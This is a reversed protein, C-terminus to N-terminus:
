RGSAPPRTWPQVHNLHGSHLLSRLPSTYMLSTSLANPPASNCSRTIHVSRARQFEWLTSVAHTCSAVHMPSTLTQPVGSSCVCASTAPQHTFVHAHMCSTKLVSAALPRVAPMQGSNALSLWRSVTKSLQQEELPASAARSPHRQHLRWFEALEAVHLVFQWTKPLAPTDQAPAASVHCIATRLRRERSGEPLARLARQWKGSGSGSGGGDPQPQVYRLSKRRVSRRCATALVFFEDIVPTLVDPPLGCSRAAECLRHLVRVPPESEPPRPQQAPNYSRWQPGLARDLAAIQLSHRTM